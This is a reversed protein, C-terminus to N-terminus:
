VAYGEAEFVHQDNDENSGRADNNLVLLLVDRSLSSSSILEDIPSSRRDISAPLNLNQINLTKKNM